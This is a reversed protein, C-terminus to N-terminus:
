MGLLVIGLMRLRVWSIRPALERINRGNVFINVSIGGVQRM